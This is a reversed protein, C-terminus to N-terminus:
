LLEEKLEGNSYTVLPWPAEAGRGGEVGPKIESSLDSQSYILSLALRRHTEM